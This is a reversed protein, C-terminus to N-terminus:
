LRFLGIVLFSPSLIYKINKTSKCFDPEQVLKCMSFWCSCFSSTLLFYHRIIGKSGAPQLNVNLIVQMSQNSIGRHMQESDSSRRGSPSSEWL